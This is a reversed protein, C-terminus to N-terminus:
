ALSSVVQNRVRIGRSSSRAAVSKVRLVFGVGFESLVFSSSVLPFQQAPVPIPASARASFSESAPLPFHTYIARVPSRLNSCPCSGSVPRVSQVSM